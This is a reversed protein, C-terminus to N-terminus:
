GDAADSESRHPRRRRPEPRPRGGPMRIRNGDWVVLRAKVPPQFTTGPLDLLQLKRWAAPDLGFARHILREFEAQRAAGHLHTEAVLYRDIGPVRKFHELEIPTANVPYEWAMMRVGARGPFTVLATNSALHEMFYTQLGRYDDEGAGWHEPYQLLRLGVPLVVLAWAAREPVASLTRSLFKRLGDVLAFLGVCAGVHYFVWSPALYRPAVFHGSTILFAGFCPFFTLALPLVRAIGRLSRGLLVLGGFALPIEVYASWDQTGAFSFDALFARLLQTWTGTGSGAQHNSYFAAVALAHALVIALAGLLAFLALAARAARAPTLEVERWRPLLGVLLAGLLAGAYAVGFYHTAGMAAAALSFGALYGLRRPERFLKLVCTVALTALAPFLAYMRAEISYNMFSSTIALLAVVGLARTRSLALELCLWYVAVLLVCGSILSVSRLATESYGFPITALKVLVFFLPPHAPEPGALVTPWARRIEVHTYDEDLWLSCARSVYVRFVLSLFVLAALASAHPHRRVAALAGRLPDRTLAGPAVESVM